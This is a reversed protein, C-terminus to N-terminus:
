PTFPPTEPPLIWGSPFGMLQEYFRVSLPTGPACNHNLLFSPFSCFQGRTRNKQSPPLTSNRSDNAVPTPLWGFGNAATTPMQPLLQFYCRRSSPIARLRWTLASKKSYWGHRRALLGRVNEAVVWAPRCEVVCRLMQRWLTLDM